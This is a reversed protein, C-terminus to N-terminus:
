KLRPCEQRLKEMCSRINEDKFGLRNAFQQLLEHCDNLEEDVLNRVYHNKVGYRDRSETEEGPYYRPHDDLKNQNYLLACISFVVMYQKRSSKQIPTIAPLDVDRDNPRITYEPKSKSEYKRFSRMDLPKFVQWLTEKMRRSLGLQCSISRCMYWDDQNRKITQNSWKGNYIGRNYVELRKWKSPMGAIDWERTEVDDMRIYSENKTLPSSFEIPRLVIKNGEDTSFPHEKAPQNQSSSGEQNQNSSACSPIKASM